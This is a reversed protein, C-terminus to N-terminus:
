KFFFSFPVNYTLVDTPNRTDRMEIFCNGGNVQGSDFWAIPVDETSGVLSSLLVWNTQAISAATQGPAGPFFQGVDYGGQARGRVEMFQSFPGCPKSLWQINSFSGKGNRAIFIDARVSFSDNSAPITRVLRLPTNLTQILNRNM